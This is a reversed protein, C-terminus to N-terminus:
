WKVVIKGVSNRSELFAHAKGLDDIKFVGGEKPDLIGNETMEVVKELCRKLVKPKHDAIRLMNIGIISQSSMMLQIPTMIGFKLLLNVTGLIGKSNNLRDAVGYLLIKGGKDLISMDKKYSKGGVSNFIVDLKNDSIKKIHEIYDVKSINVPHDVGNEKLYAMKAEKSTLGIVECGQIKALQTIATGVGGAAAHILVRDGKFLNICEMAGYYATCYQTALASAKVSALNNSIVAVGSVDTKAFEAYGGFRTMAVVRKGLLKEGEECVAEVVEGVVDYGLISPLPPADNYLGRRAMVDAFNLGFAEVKIIVENISIVPMPVEEIHFTKKADGYSKLVAAKMKFYNNDMTKIRLDRM